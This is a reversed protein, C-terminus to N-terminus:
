GIGIISGIFTMYCRSEKGPVRCDPILCFLLCLPLTIVYVIKSRMGTEPDFLESAGGVVGEWM